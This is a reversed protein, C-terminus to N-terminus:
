QRMAHVGVWGRLRAAIFLHHHHAPLLPTTPPHSQLCKHWQVDKGGEGNTQNTNSNNATPQRQASAARTPQDRAGQPTGRSCQHRFPKPHTQERRRVSPRHINSERNPQPCEPRLCRVRVSFERCWIGLGRGRGQCVCGARADKGEQIKQHANGGKCM